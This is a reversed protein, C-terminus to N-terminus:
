GIQTVGGCFPDHYHHKRIGCPCEGDDFYESNEQNDNLCQCWESKLTSGFRGTWEEASFPVFTKDSM